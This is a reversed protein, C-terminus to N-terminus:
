IAYMVYNRSLSDDFDLCTFTITTDSNHWDIDAVSGDQRGV